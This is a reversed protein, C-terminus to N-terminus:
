IQSGTVTVMLNVAWVYGDDQNIGTYEGNEWDTVVVWNDGVQRYMRLYESTLAPPVNETIPMKIIAKFETSTDVNIDIYEGTSLSFNGSTPEVTPTTNDEGAYDVAITIQHSLM